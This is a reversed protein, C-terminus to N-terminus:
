GGAARKGLHFVKIALWSALGLAALVCVLIVFGRSTIGFANLVWLLAYLADWALTSLTTLAGDDGSAWAPVPIAIAMASVLVLWRNSPSFDIRDM